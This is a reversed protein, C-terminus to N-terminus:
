KCSVALLKEFNLWKKVWVTYSCEQYNCDKCKINIVYKIGSVVQRTASTIQYNVNSQESTQQLAFKAAEVVDSDNVNINTITGTLKSNLNNCAMSIPVKLNPINQVLVQIECIKNNNPFVFTLFYKRAGFFQQKASLLQYFTSKGYYYDIAFNAAEIVHINNIDVNETIGFPLVTSTIFCPATDFSSFFLLILSVIVKLKKLM